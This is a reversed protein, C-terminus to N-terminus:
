FDINDMSDPVSRQDGQRNRRRQSNDMKGFRYSFTLMGVRSERYREGHYQHFDSFNYIQMVRTKFIDTVNLSLTGKGKFLDQRIGADVGSMGKVEGVPSKMTSVYNATVQFSTSPTIKGNINLRLNWNTADSQLEPSINQANIKNQYINFSLMSSWQKAFQVRAVTELGINDSSSFNVTTMTTVGTATDISRYRSILDDTHRYYLSTTFSSGEVNLAYSLEMSNILEPSLYPNGVRVNVSDSLDRFPDLQRSDPRNIRRSYSAQLEQKSTLNYKLFASPFLNLYDNKYPTGVQQSLISILTQEARLGGNYEFKRWRGSYMSYAALVQEDYNYQNDFIPDDNYTSTAPNYFSVVQSNDLQRLSSKLGGELKGGNKFPWSLDSQAVLSQFTGRNNSLEYPTEGYNELSSIYSANEKSDNSSYSVSATLEGKNKMWIHKYDLNGDLNVNDNASSTLKSYYFNSDSGPYYFDYSVNEPRSDNRLSTGGSISL